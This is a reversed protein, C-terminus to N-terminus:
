ERKTIQYKNCLFCILYTVGYLGAIALLGPWLYIVIVIAGLIAVVVIIFVFFILLAQLWIPENNM